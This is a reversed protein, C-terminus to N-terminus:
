YTIVCYASWVMVVGVSSLISCDVIVQLVCVEVDLSKLPWNTVFEVVVIETFEKIM